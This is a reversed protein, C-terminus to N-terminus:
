GYLDRKEKEERQRKAQEYKAKVEAAFAKKREVEAASVPPASSKPRPKKGEQAKSWPNLANMMNKPWIYSNKAEPPLIKVAVEYLSELQEATKIHEGLTNCISVMSENISPRVRVYSQQCYLEYFAQGVETFAPTPSPHVNGGYGRGYSLSNQSLSTGNNNTPAVASVDAYTDTTTDTDTDVDTPVDADAEPADNFPTLRGNETLHRDNKPLCQAHSRDNKSLHRGNETLHRDNKPLCREFETLDNELKKLTDWSHQQYFEERQADTFRSYRENLQWLKETSLSLQLTGVNGDGKKGLFNCALLGAKTLLDVAKLATTASVRCLRALQPYSGQWVLTCDGWFRSWIRVFVMQVKPPLNCAEDFVIPSRNFKGGKDKQQSQSLATISQTNSM